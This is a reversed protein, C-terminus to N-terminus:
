SGGGSGRCLHYPQEGLKAFSKVIPAPSNRVREQVQVRKRMIPKQGAETPHSRGQRITNQKTMNPQKRESSLEKQIPSLPSAYISLPTHPLHKSFNLSSFGM